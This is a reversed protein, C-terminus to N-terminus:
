STATAEVDRKDLDRVLPTRMQAVFGTPYTRNMLGLRGVATDAPLFRTGFAVDWIILNNGFNHDSEAPLESHHWRHLEPGSILYNLWGLKVDCNSHQYFGNLAYFVFYAALVEDGVGVLVFPLADVCYQVAKEAPHFRGVNLWYLRHPSHHVAHWRWMFASGHFARHLWYRFFDAVAMMLAAQGFVPWSHPWLGALTLDGERLWGAFAVTAALSLLLPLVVQITLMFAADARLDGPQPRWELRYPLVIEHLTILGAGVLVALYSAAIVPMGLLGAGAYVAIGSLIVVPYSGRVALKTATSTPDRPTRLPAAGKHARESASM